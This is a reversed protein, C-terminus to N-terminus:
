PAFCKIPELVIERDARDAPWQQGPPETSVSAMCLVRSGWVAFHRMPFYPLIGQIAHVGSKM